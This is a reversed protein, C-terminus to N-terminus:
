AAEGDRYRRLLRQDAPRWLTNQVFSAARKAADLYRGASPRSALVRAARAFAGTMLGNWATPPKEDLHPGPRRGGAAALTTGARALIEGIEASTKGSRAAIDDVSQSAYLLNKGRFEGQPDEPANGGAEIGFRRRVVDADAGLLRGIEEDGWVYFAGEMKHAAAQDVSEAPISDADEAQYSGGRPHTLDRLVYELTDEAVDAFFADATAQFAELYAIVLQAQDYLMKEFHPVRWEADVSYRHFGGGIH